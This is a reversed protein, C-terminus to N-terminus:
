SLDRAGTRREPIVISIADDGKERWSRTSAGPFRAPSRRWWCPVSCPKPRRASWFTSCCFVHKLYITETVAIRCLTIRKSQARPRVAFHLLVIVAAAVAPSDM